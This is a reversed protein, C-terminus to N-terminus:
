FEDTEFQIPIDSIASISFEQQNRIGEGQPFEYSTIVMTHIGFWNLYESILCDAPIPVPANCIQVLEKVDDEPYNNLQSNIVGTIEIQYDGDSIYEKETGNRGQIPTTVINKTQTITILVSDIKIGNKISITKGELNNYEFPRIKLNSYVPTGFYSVSAKEDEQFIEAEIPLTFIKPKLAQIGAGNLLYTGSTM